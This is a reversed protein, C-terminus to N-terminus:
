REDVTEAFGCLFGPPTQCGAVDRTGCFPCEQRRAILEDREDQGLADWQNFEDAQANWANRALTAPDTMTNDQDSHRDRPCHRGTKLPEEDRLQPCKEWGCEGDHSAHCRISCVAPALCHGAMDCSLSQCKTARAAADDEIGGKWAEGSM